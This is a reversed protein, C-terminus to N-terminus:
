SAQEKSLFYRHAKVERIIGNMQVMRQFCRLLSDQSEGERIWVELSMVCWCMRSVYVPWTDGAWTHGLTLGTNVVRDSKETAIVVTCQNIVALNLLYKPTKAVSPAHQPFCRANPETVATETANQSGQRAARRVASPSM